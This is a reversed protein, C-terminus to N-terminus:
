AAQRLLWDRLVQAEGSLPRKLSWTVFFSQPAAMRAETVQALKRKAILPAVLSQWGLAV